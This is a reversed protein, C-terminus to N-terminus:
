NICRIMHGHGSTQM